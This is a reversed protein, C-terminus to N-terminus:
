LEGTAGPSCRLGEAQGKPGQITEMSRRRSIRHITRDGFGPVRIFQKTCHGPCWLASHTPTKERGTVEKKKKLYPRGIYGLIAKFEHYEQRLRGLLPIVSM